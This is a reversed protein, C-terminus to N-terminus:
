AEGTMFVEVDSRRIRVARGDGPRHARLDGRAIAAKVYAYKVYVYSLRTLEATEEITLWGSQPAEVVAKRTM